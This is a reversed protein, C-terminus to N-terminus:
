ETLKKVGFQRAQQRNSHTHVTLSHARRSCGSQPLGTVTHHVRADTHLFGAPSVLMAPPLGVNSGFRTAIRSAAPPRRALSRGSSVGAVGEPRSRSPPPCDIVLDTVYCFQM